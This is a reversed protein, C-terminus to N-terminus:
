GVNERALWDLVFAGGAGALATALAPLLTKLEDALRWPPNVLILGAGDLSTGPGMARLHLEVRLMKAIGSRRLRKVFDDVPQRAKIPYWLLYSGTPWKRHAAELGTALRTFEDRDEFPPDVVVLGRREPPPVYANLATWGDIAIAKARREPRLHRRLVAFAEPELESATLRDQGRMLRLALMPSGPYYRFVGTANLTAVVDLYPALLARVGAPLEADRLRGIGQRWEGTRSAQAGGLDYLGLGAHTDIVRFGQPKDALHVLVRALVAHKLVDGFNGAHFAHRYNM